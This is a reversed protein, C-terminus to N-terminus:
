ASLSQLKEKRLKTLMKQMEEKKNNEVFYSEFLNITAAKDIHKAATELLFIRENTTLKRKELYQHLAYIEESFRKNQIFAM